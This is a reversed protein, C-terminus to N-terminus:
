AVQIPIADGAFVYGDVAAINGQFAEEMMIEEMNNEEDIEIDVNHSPQVNVQGLGLSDTQDSLLVADDFDEPDPAGTPILVDRFSPHDLGYGM